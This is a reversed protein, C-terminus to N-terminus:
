LKNRYKYINIRIWHVYRSVRTYFGPQDVIARGREFKKGYSVIGIVFKKQDSYDYVMPSGSDGTNTDIQKKYDAACIMKDQSYFDDKECEFPELTPVRATQLYKARTGEALLGMGIIIADETTDYREDPPINITAVNITRNFKHKVRLLAIDNDWLKPRKFDPHVIIKDVAYRKGKHRENSGALVHCHSSEASVFHAATLVWKKHIICGGGSRHDCIVEVFYPYEEIAASRGHVVFSSTSEISLLLLLTCPCLDKALAM